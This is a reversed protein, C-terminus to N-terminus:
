VMSTLKEFKKMLEVIKESHAVRGVMIGDINRRKIYLHANEENVSGGYIFKVDKIMKGLSKKLDEIVKNVLEPEAPKDTGISYYPEYAVVLRQEGSLNVDKNKVELQKSLYSSLDSNFGKPEGICLIVNLGSNFANIVKRNIAENNEDSSKSPIECERHGIITWNVGLDKLMGATIEGTYPGFSNSHHSVNQSCPKCKSGFKNYQSVMSALHISSPSTIVEINEPFRLNGYLNIMENSLKTNLYCKWNCVITLKKGKLDIKEVLNEDENKFINENQSNSNYLKSNNYCTNPCNFRNKRTHIPKLFTNFNFCNNRVNLYHHNGNHFKYSEVFNFYLIFHFIIYFLLIIKFINFNFFNMFYVYHFFSILTTYYM